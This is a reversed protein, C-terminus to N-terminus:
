GIEKLLPVLEKERLKYLDEVVDTGELYKIRYGMGNLQNIFDIAQPDLDEMTIILANKVHNIVMSGLLSKVQSLPVTKNWNEPKNLNCSIYMQQGFENVATLDVDQDKAEPKIEKLGKIELFKRIWSEFGDPSEQFKNFCEHKSITKLVDLKLEQKANEKDRIKYYLQTGLNLLVIFIILYFLGIITDM